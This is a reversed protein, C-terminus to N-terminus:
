NHFFIMSYELLWLMILAIPIVKMAGILNGSKHIGIMMAILFLPMMPEHYRPSGFFIMCPLIMGIMLAFFYDKEELEKMMRVHSLAILTLIAGPVILIFSWGPLNTIDERYSKGQRPFLQLPLYVDSSFLYAIKKPIMMLSSIPNAIIYNFAEKMASQQAKMEPLLDFTKMGSAVNYSGNAEPNNGIYLNIGTNSAIVPAGLVIANRIMWPMLTLSCCVFFSIILSKSHPRQKLDILFIAIACFLMIPRALIAIGWLMGEIGRSVINAYRFRITISLMMACIALPESMLTMSQVWTMPLLLYIGAGILSKMESIGADFLILGCCFATLAIFMSQLIFGSIVHPYVMYAISLVAPFGIPRYATPIGFATYSQTEALRMAHEHYDLADSQPPISFIGAIIVHMIGGILSLMALRRIFTSSEMYLIVMIAM